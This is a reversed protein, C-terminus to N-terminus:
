APLESGIAGLLALWLQAWDRASRPQRGRFSFHSLEVVDAEPIDFRAIAEALMAPLKRQPASKIAGDPSAFATPTVDLARALRWLVDLSPRRPNSASGRDGELLHIYTRSLPPVTAAALQQRSLGRSERIERLRSGDFAPPEDSDM